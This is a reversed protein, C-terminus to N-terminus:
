RGGNAFLPVIGFSLLSFWIQTANRDVEHIAPLVSTLVGLWQKENYKDLFKEFTTM